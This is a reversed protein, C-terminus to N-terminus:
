DDEAVQDCRHPLFLGGRTGERRGHGGWIAQGKEKFTWTPKTQDVEEQTLGKPKSEVSLVKWTGMLKKLDDAPEGIPPPASSNLAVLFVFLNM